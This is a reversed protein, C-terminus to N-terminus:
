HDVKIVLFAEVDEGNSLTALIEVYHTGVAPTNLTVNVLPSSVSSTPTESSPGTHRLVVTSVTVGSPLDNAFTVTHTREERSSQRALAFTPM